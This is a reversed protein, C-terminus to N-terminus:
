RITKLVSQDIDVKYKGRLYTNWKSELLVQYDSEVLNRVDEFTEPSNIKKGVVIFFPYGKRLTPEVDGFAKNDVFPNDGKAWLGPELLAVVSDTNLTASIKQALEGTNKYKGALIKVQNLVSEDKCYVVLGKYKAADWKYKAKHENFYKALGIEDTESKEWINRNKVGFLLLGDSYDTMLNAFEPSREDLISDAYASVALSSYVGFLDKLKDTSLNFNVFQMTQIMDLELDKKAEEVGIKSALYEAFDAVTYKRDGEITFLLEDQNTIERIFLPDLPEFRNAIADLKNYASTNVVLNYKEAQRKQWMQTYYESREGYMIKHRLGKEVVSLPPISIKDKLRIIHYGYDTMVPKSMDGVNEVAFAATIFSSPLQANLDYAGFDCDSIGTQNVDNYAQCLKDFDSSTKLTKYVKDVVKGVSDIQQKTPPIHSFNFAVQELSVKGRAPRKGLVQIIHYGRNSRIPMSIEGVPLSYIADEVPMPMTFPTVWGLYGNQAVRDMVISTTKTNDILGDGSFGNKLLKNRLNVAENYLALTDAPFINQKDFPLLVHNIEVDELLRDYIMRVVRGETVTDRLYSGSLQIRYSSYDRKYSATTDLKQAKAEEVNLRFDIFSDLYSELSEQERQLSNYYSREVESKYIPKGNITIAVPDNQQASSNLSIFVLILSLFLKQKM